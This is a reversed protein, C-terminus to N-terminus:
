LNGGMKRKHNEVQKDMDKKLKKRIKKDKILFFGMNGPNKSKPHIIPDFAKHREVTNWIVHNLHNLKESFVFEGCSELMSIVEEYKREEKVADAKEKLKKEYGLNVFKPDVFLEIIKLKKNKLPALNLYGFVNDIEHEADNYGTLRLLIEIVGKNDRVTFYSNNDLYHLIQNKNAHKHLPVITHLIDKVDKSTPNNTPVTM